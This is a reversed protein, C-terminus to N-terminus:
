LSCSGDNNRLATGVLITMPYGETQMQRRYPENVTATLIGVTAALTTDLYYLDTNGVGSSIGHSKRWDPSANVNTCLPPDDLRVRMYIKLTQNYALDFAMPTNIPFNNLNVVEDFIPLLNVPNVASAIAAGGPDHKAPIGGQVRVMALIALVAVPFVFAAIRIM